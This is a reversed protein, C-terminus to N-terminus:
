GHIRGVECHEPTPGVSSQNPHQIIESLGSLVGRLRERNNITLIIWGILAWAFALIAGPTRSSHKLFLYHHNLVSTRWVLEQSHRAASSPHHELCSDPQYVIKGGIAKIQKAIDVDEKTPSSSLNEDFAIQGFIRRRFAMSCGSLCEVQLLKTRHHPVSPFGSPKFKGSGLSSLMFVHSISKMLPVKFYRAVRGSPTINYNVIRSLVAVIEGSVDEQFTSMLNQIYLKDLIVDDDVFAIVDGTSHRIAHNRQHTLGPRSREYILKLDAGVIEHLQGYLDDDQGADVIVLEDPKVQQAMVSHLARLLDQKRDKTCIVLSCNLTTEM